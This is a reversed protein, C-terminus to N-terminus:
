ESKLPVGAIAAVLRKGQGTLITLSVERFPLVVRLGAQGASRLGSVCVYM